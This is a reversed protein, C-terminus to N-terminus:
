HGWLDAGSNLGRGGIEAEAAHDGAPAAIAQDVAVAGEVDADALPVPPAVKEAIVRQQPERPRLHEGQQNGAKEGDVGDERNRVQRAAGPGEGAAVREARGGAREEEADVRERRDAVAVDHRGREGGVEHDDEFRDEAQQGQRDGGADHERAERAGDGVDAVAAVRDDRGVAVDGRELKAHDVAPAVLQDVHARHHHQAPELPLRSIALPSEM